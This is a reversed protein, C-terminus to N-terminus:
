QTIIASSTTIASTTTNAISTLTSNVIDFTASITNIHTTNANINSLMNTLDQSNVQGLKPTNKGNAIRIVNNIGNINVISNAETNITDILSSLSTYQDNSLTQKSRRIQNILKSTNLRKVVIQKILGNYNDYAKKVGDAQAVIQVDIASSTTSQPAISKIGRQLSISKKAIAKHKAQYGRNRAFSVSSTTAVIFIALIVTIVKKM